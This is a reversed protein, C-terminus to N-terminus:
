LRGVGVFYLETSTKRSSDLDVRVLKQYEPKYQKFLQDAEPSPFIKTVITGGKKLLMQAIQFAREVLEASQQTDRFRIGSLKPSMDSLVVDVGDACENAIQAYITPEFIDGFIRMVRPQNDPSQEEAFAEVEVLDVGIVKGQRGVKEIAVQMWSGPFCGLDLVTDGPNLFRHKKILEQLKYAARSRYGQQKAKKYLHDKREYNGPM